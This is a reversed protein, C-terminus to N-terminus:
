GKDRLFRILDAVDQAARALNDRCCARAAGSARVLLALRLVNLAALVRTM